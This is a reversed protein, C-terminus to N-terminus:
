LPSTGYVMRPVQIPLWYCGVVSQLDDQADNDWKRPTYTAKNLHVPLNLLCVRGFADIIALESQQTPAWALHVIPSDPLTAPLSCRVPEGLEWSGTSPNARPCQLNVQFGDPSISAISGHKSYAVRRCCGRSRTEDVRQQLQKSPPRSPMALVEDGVDGFLDDDMAAMGGGLSNMHEDMMM